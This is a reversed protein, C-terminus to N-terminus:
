GVDHLCLTTMDGVALCPKKHNYFHGEDTLIQPCSRDLRNKHIKIFNFFLKSWHLGGRKNTTALVVSDGFGWIYITQHGWSRKNKRM